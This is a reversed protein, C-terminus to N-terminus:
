RLRLRIEKVEGRELRVTEARDWVDEFYSGLELADALTGAPVALIRYEGPPLGPIRFRGEADGTVHAVQNPGSAEMPWRTYFVRPQLAQNEGETVAGALTAPQNDLVIEVASNVGTVTADALSAGNVRIEKVYYGQRLGNVSVRNRAARVKKLLFTGDARPIATAPGLLFQDEPAFFVNVRDLPPLAASGEAMVFRGSVEFDPVLGLAVKLNKNTLEVPLSAWGQSGQLQFEYSGPPLRRLLYDQCGITEMPAVAPLRGLLVLGERGSISFQLQDGPKCGAPEIQMRYLRGHRLQITGLDVSAGSPVPLVAAAAVDPVGPWYATELAEDTGNLDAETFGHALVPPGNGISARFIYRGPAIGLMRFTGDKGSRSQGRARQAFSRGGSGPRLAEVLVNAVARGNEDVVTGSLEALRMLDVRVVERPRAKSVTVLSGAEEAPKPPVGGSAPTGPEAGSMAVYQGKKAEVYFSGEHTPHFLFEGQADTIATAFVTRESDKAFQYLTVQADAVGTESGLESVVGRIEFADQGQGRALWAGLVSLAMLWRALM